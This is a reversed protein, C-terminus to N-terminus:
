VHLQLDYKPWIYGIEQFVEVFLVLLFLKKSFNLKGPTIPHMSQVCIEIKEGGKPPM